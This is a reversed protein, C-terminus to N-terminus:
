ISRTLRIHVAKVKGPFVDSVIADLRRYQHGTDRQYGEKRKGQLQQQVFAFALEHRPGNGCRQHDTGLATGQVQDHVREVEAIFTGFGDAHLRDVPDPFGIQGQGNGDICVRELGASKGDDAGGEVIKIESAQVDFGASM